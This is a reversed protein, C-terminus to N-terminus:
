WRKWLAKNNNWLGELSNHDRLTDMPHWFGEHKFAKFENNSILKPLVDIEFSCDDGEINDFIKKNLVFYGGNIWTNNDEVKELFNIVNNYKLKINGFRGPPPVATVTAISENTNHFKIIENINVDSLGDGYSFCFTDDEIYDKVRLLRGGTQTDDGTDILTVKWNENKRELIEMYNDEDLHFRVDSTHLFYNAFYEKIMYGKYGCCIVFENIGYNSYIKMIHWLIPKGGIEVLPKPKIHTEESIRTGKGGALIVAKM